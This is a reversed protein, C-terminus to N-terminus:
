LDIKKRSPVKNTESIEKIEGLFAHKRLTLLINHITVIFNDGNNDCIKIRVKGKQKETVHNVYEAEVHKDTDELSGPIFDSVDQTMHCTTGYDLTWNTLQSNESFNGSPCEYNDFM